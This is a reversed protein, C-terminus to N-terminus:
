SAQEKWGEYTLHKIGLQESASMNSNDAVQDVCTSM